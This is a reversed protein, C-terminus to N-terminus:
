KETPQKGENEGNCQSKRSVVVWGFVVIVAALALTLYFLNPAIDNLTTMDNEM